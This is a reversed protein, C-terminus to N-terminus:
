RGLYYTFGITSRIDRQITNPSWEYILETDLSINKNLFWSFGFGALLIYSEHPSTIINNTIGAGIIPYLSFPKWSYDGDEKLKGFNFHYRTTVDAYTGFGSELKENLRYGWIGFHTTSTLELNKIPLYGIKPSLILNLSQFNGNTFSLGGRGTGGITWTGKEYQASCAMSQFLLTIAIIYKM